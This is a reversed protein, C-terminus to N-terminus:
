DTMVCASGFFDLLWFELFACVIRSRCSHVRWDKYYKSRGASLLTGKVMGRIRCLVGNRSEWAMSPLNVIVFSVDM